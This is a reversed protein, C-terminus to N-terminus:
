RRRQRRLRHNPERFSSEPSPEGRERRRLYYLVLPALGLIVVCLTGVVASQYDGRSTYTLCIWVATTVTVVALLLVAILARPSGKTGRVPPAQAPRLRRRASEIPV